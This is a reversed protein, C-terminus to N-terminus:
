THKKRNVLSRYLIFHGALDFLQVISNVSQAIWQIKATMPQTSLYSMLLLTLISFLYFVAPLRLKNKLSFITMTVLFGINALTMVAIFPIKWLEMGPAAALMVETKSRRLLGLSGIFLFTFGPALMIFQSSQLAPLYYGLAAELLKSTAKYLGGTFCLVAGGAMATYFGRTLYEYGIRLLYVSGIGFFIVPLYDMLALYVTVEDM